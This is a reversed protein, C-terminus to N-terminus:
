LIETVEYTEDHFSPQYLKDVWTGGWYDHAVESTNFLNVSLYKDSVYFYPTRDKNTKEYISAVGRWSADSNTNNFTKRPVELTIVESVGNGGVVRYVLYYDGSLDLSSSNEATVYKGVYELAYDGIHVKSDILSGVLRPANILLILGFAMVLGTLFLKFPKIKSETYEIKYLDEYKRM